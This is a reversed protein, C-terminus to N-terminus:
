DCDEEWRWLLDRHTEGPIFGNWFNKSPDNIAHKPYGQGQSDRGSAVIVSGMFGDDGVNNQYNLMLGPMPPYKWGLGEDRKALIPTLMKEYRAKIEKAYNDGNAASGRGFDTELIRTVAMLECLTSLIESTPRAPLNRFPQGDATQFPAFYRPSLDFEVQGEAESILREALPVPMKNENNVDRTFRVKGILRLAVADFTTYIPKITPM